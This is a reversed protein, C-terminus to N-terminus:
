KKEDEPKGKKIVEPEAAGEAGEAPAEARAHTVGVVVREPDDLVKVGEPLKLDKVRYYEHGGLPTVDVEVADPISTPLTELHLERVQWDLIGGEKVGIATGNLQVPVTVKIKEDMVVRVFDIHEMKRSMPNITVEKIMAHRQQDTGAMKLLFVSRIGHESKQILESVSKRDVTIAVPEKHGGYVVAPVKGDRRLKKAIEKGTQERRTVELTVEAM